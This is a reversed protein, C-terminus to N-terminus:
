GLMVTVETKWANRIRWQLCVLQQGKKHITINTKHLYKAITSRIVWPLFCTSLGETRLRPMKDEGTVEILEVHIWDLKVTEAVKSFSPIEIFQMAGVNTLPLKMRPMLSFAVNQTSPGGEGGTCRVSSTDPFWLRRVRRHFERDPVVRLLSKMMLIYVTYTLM